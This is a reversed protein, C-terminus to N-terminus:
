LPIRTGWGDKEAAQLVIRAVAVDQVANGVSKFFTIEDPSQRGPAKGALVEGIEVIDEERIAGERLPIILDGAEVLASTRSDIVVRARAVLGAPIEQMEPTYAGIGNVHTGPSVDAADFVPRRSITATNIVDADRVAERASSVTRFDIDPLEESMRDCLARAAETNIDYIRVERIPRVACVASIQTPAQGGAGIMAMIGSDERALLRTAVGSAAGTRLATLYTGEIAAKPIGTEADVVIVLATVTPLGKSPNEGYVSVIKVAMANDDKLYGPMFLTVGHSTRLPVRLPVDARSFSLQVYANEVADIASLMSVGREVEEASVALLEM